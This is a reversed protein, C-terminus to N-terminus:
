PPPLMQVRYFRQNDTAGPDTVYWPYGTSLAPSGINIWNQRSLNTTYQVQYLYEPLVNLRLTATSNTQTIADIYPPQLPTVSVNDLGLYAPDDRFGFQLTANTGTAAIVFENTQWGVVADNTTDMLVTGNWTVKFESNVM